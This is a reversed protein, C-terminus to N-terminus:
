LLMLRKRELSSLEQSQKLTRVIFGAYRDTLRLPEPLLKRQDEPLEKYASVAWSLTDALLQVSEFYDIHYIINGFTLNAPVPLTEISQIMEPLQELAMCSCQLRAVRAKLMESRLKQHLRDQAEKGFESRVVDSDLELFSLSIQNKISYDFLVFNSFNWGVLTLDHLEGPALTAKIGKEGGLDTIIDKFMSIATNFYHLASILEGEYQYCLAALLLARILPLSPTCNSM